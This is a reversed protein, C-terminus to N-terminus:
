LCQTYICKGWFNVQGPFSVSWFCVFLCFFLWLWVRWTFSKVVMLDQAQVLMLHAHAPELVLFPMGERGPPLHENRSWSARERYAAMYVSM